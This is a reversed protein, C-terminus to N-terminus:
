FSVSLSIGQGGPVWMPTMTTKTAKKKARASDVLAWVVGGVAAAAGVGYLVYATNIKPAVDDKYAKDYEAQFRKDPYKNILDSEAGFALGHLVAGALVMAGGAGVVTWPWASSRKKGEAGSTVGNTLGGDGAVADGEKGGGVKDPPAVVAVEPQANPPKEVITKGAVIIVKKKWPMKGPKGVMLEYSGPKLKRSFPVIGELAGDLFVQIARGTGEVVLEGMEAAKKKDLVVLHSAEGGVKRVVFEEVKSGHGKATVVVAQNGPEFWWTLPCNYSTGTTEKGIYITAGPVTCAIGLKVLKGRLEKELRELEQRAEPDDKPNARIFSGLHHWANVTNGSHEYAAALNFHVNLALEGEAVAVVEEWLVIAQDIKGEQAMELAKQSRQKLAEADPDTQAMAAAPMVLLLLSSIFRLFYRM